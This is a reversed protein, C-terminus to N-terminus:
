RAKCGGTAPVLVCDADVGALPHVMLDPWLRKDGAGFQVRVRVLYPMRPRQSWRERWSPAPNPEIAGFYNLSVAQVGRLLVDRRRAPRPGLAVDSVSSLVLDGGPELELRYRRLAGPGDREAPPALFTLRTAEGEFDPGPTSLDYRTVPWAHQLRSRLLTQAAEVGEARTAAGDMRAWTKGGRSLGSLMMLSLLGMVALAVLLEILTYGASRRM